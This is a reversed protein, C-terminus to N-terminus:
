KFLTVVQNNTTISKQNTPRATNYKKVALKKRRTKKSHVVKNAKIIKRAFRMVIGPELDALRCVTIFDNNYLSFWTNARIRIRRSHMSTPQCIADTLARAIVARWLQLEKSQKQKYEILGSKKNNTNINKGSETSSINNNNM